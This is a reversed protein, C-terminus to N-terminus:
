SPLRGRGAPRDLLFDLLTCNRFLSPLGRWRARLTKLGGQYRAAPAMGEHDALRELAVLRRPDGLRRPHLDHDHRRRGLPPDVLLHPHLLDSPHPLPIRRRRPRRLRRHRRRVHSLGHVISRRLPRLHRAVRRTRGREGPAREVKHRPLPLGHTGGSPAIEREGQGTGEVPAGAARDVIAPQKFGQRIHSYNPADDVERVAEGQRRGRLRVRRRRGKEGQRRPEGEDDVPEREPGQGVEGGAEGPAAGQDGEDVVGERGLGAEVGREGLPDLRALAGGESAGVADEDGRGQGGAEQGAVVGHGGFPDGDGEGAGVGPGGSAAGGRALRGEEEVDAGDHRPLILDAEDPCEGGEEVQGPPEGDHAGKLAVGRRRQGQAGGDRGPHRGPDGEEALDVVVHEGGEELPGAEEDGGGAELAVAHRDRLRDRCAQGDDGDGAAGDGLGQGLPRPQHDGGVPRLFSERIGQAGQYGVGGAEGPQSRAGEVGARAEGAPGVGGADDRCQEM